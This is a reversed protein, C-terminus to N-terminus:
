FGILVGTAGGLSTVHTFRIPHWVGVALNNLTISQASEMTVVPSGATGIYLGRAVGRTFAVASASVSEAHQLSRTEIEM